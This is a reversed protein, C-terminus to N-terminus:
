WIILKVKPWDKKLEITKESDELAEKYKGAKTYAASRNSFLIHNKPDLKIAESYHEIAEETKDNQLAVNGKSKLEEVKKLKIKL